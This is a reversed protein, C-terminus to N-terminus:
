DLLKLWLWLGVRAPHPRRNARVGLGGRATTGYHVKAAPREDIRTMQRQRGARSQACGTRPTPACSALGSCISTIVLPQGIKALFPNPGALHSM